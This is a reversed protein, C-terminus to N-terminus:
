WYLVLHLTGNHLVSDCDYGQQKLSRYIARGAADATKPPSKALGYYTYSLTRKAEGAAQRVLSDIATICPMVLEKMDVEKECLTALRAAEKAAIM